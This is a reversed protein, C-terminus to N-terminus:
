QGRESQWHPFSEVLPFVMVAQAALLHNDVKGAYVLSHYHGHQRCMSGSVALTPGLLVGSQLLTLSQNGDNYTCRRSYKRYIKVAESLLGDNNSGLRGLNITYKQNFDFILYRRSSGPCLLLM